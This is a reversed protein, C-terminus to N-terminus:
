YTKKSSHSKPLSILKYLPMVTSTEPLNQQKEATLHSHSPRSTHPKLIHGGKKNETRAPEPNKQKWQGQLNQNKKLQNIFRWTPWQQRFTSSNELTASTDNIVNWDNMDRNRLPVWGITILYIGMGHCNCTFFKKTVQQYNHAQNYVILSYLCPKFFLLSGIFIM